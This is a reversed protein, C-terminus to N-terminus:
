KNLLRKQYNFDEIVMEDVLNKFTKLPRWNLIKKAKRFDGKLSEVETPRFYKKSVEIITKGTKKDIGKETIGKGKWILKIDLKNAAINVFNRVSYQKGTAIVFDDPKKQQLMKWMALVYDEAHGWDRKANLNGLYLKKQLGLKIRSLGITIKRTVFTEGRLPSEHNFLIGNCAFMNYAERYNVIIWYAYLKAVAYPSRPYFLTNEKQPPPSKGFLESTSAQYIKTKYRLNSSKVAELLRLVGIADSNATYEPIEFSVKVHSQAALNYIEDPKIKNIIDILSSSDTMDAHHLFFKKDKISQDNFFKDIRQTNIISTRRKLGHVQYNKKLLLKTLYYGDQGTVGTILAKKM